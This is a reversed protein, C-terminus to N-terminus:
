DCQVTDWAQAVQADTAALVLAQITVFADWYDAALNAGDGAKDLAALLQEKTMHMGEKGAPRRGRQQYSLREPFDPKSAAKAPSSSISM